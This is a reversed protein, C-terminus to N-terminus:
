TTKQFRPELMDRVGSCFFALSVSRIFLFRSSILRSSRYFACVFLASRLWRSMTDAAVM